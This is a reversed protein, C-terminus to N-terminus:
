TERNLFARLSIPISCIGTMETFIAPSSFFGPNPKESPTMFRPSIAMIYPSRKMLTNYAVLGYSFSGPEAFRRYLFHQRSASSIMDLPLMIAKLLLMSFITLSNSWSGRSSMFFGLTPMTPSISTFYWGFALLSTTLM